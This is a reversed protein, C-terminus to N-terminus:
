LSDSSVLALNHWIALLQTTMPISGKRPLRYISSADNLNAVNKKRGHILNGRIPLPLIRTRRM